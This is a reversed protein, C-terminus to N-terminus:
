SPSGSGSGPCARDTDGALDRVSEVAVSAALVFYSVAILQQARREARESHLRKGTYLWIIVFGSIAEM